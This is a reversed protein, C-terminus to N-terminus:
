KKITVIVDNKDKDNKEDLENGETENKKTEMNRSGQPPYLCFWAYKKPPPPSSHFSPYIKPM